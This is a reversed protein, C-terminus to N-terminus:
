VEYMADSRNINSTEYKKRIGEIYFIQCIKINKVDETRVSNQEDYNASDATNSLRWGNHLKLIM